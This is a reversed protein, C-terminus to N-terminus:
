VGFFLHANRRTQEGFLHAPINLMEGIRTAHYLLEHPSRCQYPADSELLLHGLGIEQLIDYPPCNKGIGFHVNPFASRWSKVDESNGSFCHVYVKHSPQLRRKLINIVDDRAISPGTRQDRCHIVVPLQGVDLLVENLFQRQFHREQSSPHRFYDLGVEGLAVCKPHELLQQQRRMISKSVLTSTLHPHLGVSMYVKDSRVIEEARDWLETFNASYIMTVICLPIMYHDGHESPADGACMYDEWTWRPSARKLIVDCHLHSDFVSVFQGLPTPVTLKQSSNMVRDVSESLEKQIHMPLAMIWKRMVPRVILCCISSPPALVYTQQPIYDYSHDWARLFMVTRVSPPQERVSPSHLEERCVKDLLQELSQLQWYKQAAKLAAMTLDVWAQFGGEERVLLCRSKDGHDKLVKAVTGAVIKCTFCAKDPIAYWPVHVSDEHDRLKKANVPGCHVCVVKTTIRLDDCRRLDTDVPLALVNTEESVITPSVSITLGHQTNRIRRGSLRELASSPSVSITSGHQTNRLSRSEWIPQSMTASSSINHERSVPASSGRRTNWTSAYRVDSRSLFFRATHM